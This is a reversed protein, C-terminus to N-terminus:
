QNKSTIMCVNNPDPCDTSPNELRYYINFKRCEQSGNICLNGDSQLPQYVYQDVTPQPTVGAPTQVCTSSCTATILSSDPVRITQTGPPNPTINVGPAVLSKPDIDPLITTEQGIIGNSPYRGITSSGITYFSELNLAIAQVDAKREVDRANAQSGRLNVVGLVLLIGIITIVIILEVITFGRQNM